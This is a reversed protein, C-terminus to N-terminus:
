RNGSFLSKELRADFDISFIKDGEGHFDSGGTPLLKFRSAIKNLAINDADTHSPYYVELGDLGFKKLGSILMELRKDLLYKKPHAISSLGGYKKILSVAGVPTMRKAETYATGGIGLYKKFADNIDSAYRASVIARAITMRGLGDGLFDIDVNVNQAKLLKEIELNRAVRYKKIQDLEQLFDPNLYDINYGLIHIECNSYTSIEIGPIVRVGLEKGVNLAEDIGSITDHDTVAVVDLGGFKAREVVQAPTMSGDSATTHTHLDARM